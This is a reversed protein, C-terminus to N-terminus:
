IDGTGVTTGGGLVVVRFYCSRSTCVDLARSAGPGRESNGATCGTRRVRRSNLLPDRLDATDPLREAERARCDGCRLHQIRVDALRASTRAVAATKAGGADACCSACATRCAPLVTGSNSSRPLWWM